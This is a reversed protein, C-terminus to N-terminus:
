SASTARPELEITVPLRLVGFCTISSCSPVHVPHAVRLNKRCYILKFLLCAYPTPLLLYSTPIVLHSALDKEMRVGTDLLLIEAADFRKMPFYKPTSFKVKDEEDLVVEQGLREGDSFEMWHVFIVKSMHNDFVLSLDWGGKPRPHELSAYASRREQLLALASGASKVEVEWKGAISAELEMAEATRLGEGHEHEEGYRALLAHGLHDDVSDGGEDGVIDRDLSIKAIREHDEKVLGNFVSTAVRQEHELVMKTDKETWAEAEATDDADDGMREAETMVLGLFDEINSSRKRAAEKPLESLFFMHKPTHATIKYNEFDEMRFDLEWATLAMKETSSFYNAFVKVM